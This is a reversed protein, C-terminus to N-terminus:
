LIIPAATQALNAARFLYSLIKAADTTGAEECTEIAAIIISPNTVAYDAVRERAIELWYAKNDILAM